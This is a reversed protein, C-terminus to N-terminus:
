ILKLQRAIDQTYKAMPRKFTEEPKSYNGIIMRDIISPDPFIKSFSKTLLQRYINPNAKFKWVLEEGIDKQKDYISQILFLDNHNELLDSTATNSRFDIKLSKLNLTTWYELISKDDISFFFPDLDEGITFLEFKADKKGKALNCNACTPYLNFFSTCLFPFKSKPYFHDLQLKSIPKKAGKKKTSNYYQPEITLASQANCYVCTRIDSNLLYNPFEISRLDEYRMAKVVQEHFPKKSNGFKKDMKSSPVIKNFEDIFFQMQSPDANLISEYNAMIFSIYKKYNGSRKNRLKKLREIPHEFSSDRQVIFINDNFEKVLKRLENTIKIRRM